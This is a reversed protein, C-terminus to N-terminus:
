AKMSFRLTVAECFRRFRRLENLTEPTIQALSVREGGVLNQLVKITDTSLQYTEALSEFSLRQEMEEFEAVLAQWRAAYKSVTTQSQGRLNLQLHQMLMARLTDFRDKEQAELLDPIEAVARLRSVQRDWEQRFEQLLPRLEIQVRKWGETAQAAESQLSRVQQTTKHVVAAPDELARALDLTQQWAEEGTPIPDMGYVQTWLLYLARGKQIEQILRNLNRSLEPLLRLIKQHKEAELIEQAKEQYYAIVEHVSM